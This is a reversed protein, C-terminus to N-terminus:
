TANGHAASAFRLMLERSAAARDFEKVIEGRRMILVRDCIGLVEEFESSILLVGAGGSALAQIAKYVEVKSGVDVGRTPEDLIM